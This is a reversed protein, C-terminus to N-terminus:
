LLYPPARPVSAALDIGSGHFTSGLLFAFSNQSLFIGPDQPALGHRAQSLLQCVPCLLPHHANRRPVTAAKSIATAGTADKLFAQSVPTVGIAWEEVSVEWSHAVVLALQATIILLCCLAELRRLGTRNAQWPRHCKARDGNDQSVL